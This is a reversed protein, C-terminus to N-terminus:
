KLGIVKVFYYKEQSIYGNILSKISLDLYYKNNIQGDYVITGQNSTTTFYIRTGNIEYIGVSTNKQKLNFWSKLDNVTGSSGVSLVKGDPYFRLFSYTTDNDTSDIESVTQYFGDFRVTAKSQSFSFTTQTLLTVIVLLRAFLTM